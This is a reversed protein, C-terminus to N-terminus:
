SQACGYRKTGREASQGLPEMQLQKCNTIQSKLAIPKWEAQVDKCVKSQVQLRRANFLKAPPPKVLKCIQKHANERNTELKIQLKQLLLPEVSSLPESSPATLAAPLVPQRQPRLPRSPFQRAVADFHSQLPWCSPETDEHTQCHPTMKLILISPSVEGKWKTLPKAKCIGIVSRIQGMNFLM